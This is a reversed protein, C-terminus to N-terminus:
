GGGGVRLVEGLRERRRLSSEALVLVVVVLCVVVPPAAAWAPLVPSPDTPQGTVLRLALPGTALVALLVGLGAGGVSALLVGPLLEGATVARAGRGGLGLTRLTALTVGRHPASIAAALVVVLVALLLLVVAAAAALRQVGVTIPEARHTALWASRTAVTAGELAPTTAVAAEAGPGVAWLRDPEVPAGLAPGLSAGDVVVTDEGAALVPSATGVTTLDVRTGDWALVVDTDGETRLGASLLAAPRGAAGAADLQALEPADPLPTSALLDAFEASPLVVLRVIQGGWPGFVQAHDEVRGTLVTEVGDRTRLTAAVDTLASDPESTVTADAGVALWSADVEGQQVTAVFTAGLVVLSTAVTLTLFPLAAGATAHARAAALVPVARRSRAAATVGWRLLPPLVRLLLAAGALAGLTPALALLPDTGGTGPGTVGRTGLAAFAGAALLVAAAEAAVRAARRDKDAMSRETRDAAGRRGGTSLAALRVALTPPGLVAVAVVPVLWPWPVAGPVVAGALVVGLACGVATVVVSESGLELAIGPLSAGRARHTALVAARRRVLLTAAVLVTLLAVSLVGALLVSTQAVAARFRDRADLLVTDLATSVSTRSAGGPTPEDAAARLGAIEATVAAVDDQGLADVQPEFTVVRTTTGPPMALVAVPLSADSLLGALQTQRTLFTGVARPELLGPVTSWVPDTPDDARFVGSVAADVAVSGNENRTTLTDGVEVGLAEAVAESLGIEVPVPAGDVRTAVDRATLTERAPRGHVWTVAPPGDRDVFGTRLVPRDLDNEPGVVLLPLTAVTTVPPTLADALVPALATHAVETMDRTGAALDVLLTRSEYPNEDLPRSLTLDAGPGAERVAYRLADDGTAAVLRPTVCALLVALAVVLTTLVLPWRDARARGVVGASSVGPWRPRSPEQRRHTRVRSM